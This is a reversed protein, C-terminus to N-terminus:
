LAGRFAELLLSSLLCLQLLKNLSVLKWSAPAAVSHLLKACIAPVKIDTVHCVSAQPAM